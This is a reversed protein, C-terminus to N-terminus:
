MSEFRAWHTVDRRVGGEYAAVVRLQQTFAETGLRRAPIIELGTVKPVGKSAPAPAGAGIWAVFAQYDASDRKLRMGGEHAVAGTPKVLVLSHAPEALSVRRSMDARVMAQHDAQPDSAFVSLKFGGQGYQSAHCAGAYCGAKSLIPVIHTAFGVNPVTGI